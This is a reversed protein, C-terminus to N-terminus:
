KIEKDVLEKCAEKRIGYKSMLKRLQRATIGAEKASYNIKGENRAVLERIYHREFDALVLQRASALPIHVHVPAAVAAQGICVAGPDVPGSPIMLASQM